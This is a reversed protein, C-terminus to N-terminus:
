LVFESAMCIVGGGLVIEDEYLVLFQGPTLDRQSVDFRVHARAADLPIVTVPVPRARYRIQATARFSAAPPEGAIYHVGELYCEDRGLEAATGVILTNEAPALALM